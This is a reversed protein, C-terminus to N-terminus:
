VVNQAVDVITYVDTVEPVQKILAEAQAARAGTEELSSGEPLKLQVLFQSRDEPTMFDGPLRLAGIASAVLVVLTMLATKGKNHIVWRLVREYLHELAEFSTRFFRAVANEKPKHGGPRQKVLRASLMP